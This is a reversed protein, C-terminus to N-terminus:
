LQDLVLFLPDERGSVFWLPNTLFGKITKTYEKPWQHRTDMQLQRKYHTYYFYLQDVYNKM